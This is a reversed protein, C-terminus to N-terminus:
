CIYTELAAKFKFNRYRVQLSVSLFKLNAASTSHIQCERYARGRIRLAFTLDLVGSSVYM